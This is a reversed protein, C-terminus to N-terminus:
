HEVHSAVATRRPHEAGIWSWCAAEGTVRQPRTVPGGWGGFSCAMACGTPRGRARHGHVDGVLQALVELLVGLLRAVDDVLGHDRRAGALVRARRQRRPWRPRATGSRISAAPPPRPRRVRGIFRADGLPSRRTRNGRARTLARGLSHRVRPREVLYIARGPPLVGTPRPSPAFTTRSVTTLPRTSSGRTRMRAAARTSARGPRVHTLAATPPQESAM